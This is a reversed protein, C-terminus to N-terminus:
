NDPEELIIEGKNVEPDKESDDTHRENEDVEPIVFENAKEVDEPIESPQFPGEIKIQGPANIRALGDIQEDQYKINDDTTENISEDGEDSDTIAKLLINEEPQIYIEPDEPASFKPIELNM